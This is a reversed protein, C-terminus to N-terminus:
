LLFIDSTKATYSVKAAHAAPTMGLNDECSVEDPVQTALFKMCKLYGGKAAKHLPTEDNDDKTLCLSKAQDSAKDLLIQQLFYYEHSM